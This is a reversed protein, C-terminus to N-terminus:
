IRSCEYWASASIDHDIARLAKLSGSATDHMITMDPGTFMSNYHTSCSKSHQCELLQRTAGFFIKDCFSKSVATRFAHMTHSHCFIQYKDTSYNSVQQRASLMMLRFCINSYLEGIVDTTHKNYFFHLDFFYVLDDLLCLRFRTACKQTLTCDM